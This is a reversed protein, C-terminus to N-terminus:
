KIVIYFPVSYSIFKLFSTYTVCYNNVKNPTSTVLPQPYKINDNDLIYNSGFELKNHFFNNLKNNIVNTSLIHYM